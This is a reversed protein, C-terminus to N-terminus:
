SRRISLVRRLSPCNVFGLLLVSRGIYVCLTVYIERIGCNKTLFVSSKDYLTSRGSRSSVMSAAVVLSRPCFGTVDLAVQRLRIADEGSQSDQVQLFIRDALKSSNM